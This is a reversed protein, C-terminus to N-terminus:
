VNGVGSDSLDHGEVWAILQSAIAACDIGGGIPDGQEDIWPPLAVEGLFQFFSERSFVVYESKNAGTLRAMVRSEPCLHTVIFIGDGRDAWTPECWCERSVEHQREDSWTEPLNHIDPGM